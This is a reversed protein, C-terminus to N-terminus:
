DDDDDDDVHLAIRNFHFTYVNQFNRQNVISWFKKIKLIKVEESIIKYYVILMNVFNRIKYGAQM